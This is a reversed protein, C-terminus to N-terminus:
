AGTQGRAHIKIAKNRLFFHLAPHHNKHMSVRVRVVNDHQGRGTPSPTVNLNVPRLLKDIGIKTDFFNTIKGQGFRALATKKHTYQLFNGMATSIMEAGLPAVLAFALDHVHEALLRIDDGPVLAPRIGTMGDNNTAFRRRQM